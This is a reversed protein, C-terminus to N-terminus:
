ENANAEKDKKRRKNLLNNFLASLASIYLIISIMMTIIEPAYGLTQMALGGMRLYAIFLASLVIGIPQSLGLLGVAIGQFGEAALVNVVTIHRGTSALFTLGGALGSLAGAILMSFIISRKENVGAYRAANRNLGVAKLEFGFTTNNLVIHIIVAFLVAIVIGGNAFSRPFLTTLGFTPITVSPSMTQNRLSDYIGINRILFNVLYMSIYNMMISTIVENVNRWAKFVGTPLAVLAGAIAAGILAVIWLIPAPIFTWKIAIYVAVLAGMMFQGSAGINFLGTQFAFGVSLGTMLIPTAYYFLDGFGKLFGSNFPGKFLRITGEFANSSDTIYLVVIGIVMGILISILSPLAKKFNIRKM